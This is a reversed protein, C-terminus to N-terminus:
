ASRGPLGMRERLKRTLEEIAGRENTVKPTKHLEVWWTNIQDEPVNFRRLWGETAVVTSLLPATSDLTGDQLTDLTDAVIPRLAQNLLVYAAPPLIPKGPGDSIGTEPAAGAQIILGGNGLPERVFWDPPLALSSSGGVERVLEADLANLWDVTKIKTYLKRINSRMPDGVDIGPGFRRAYFYESAENPRRGMPPVNVAFGAHGHVTPLTEAFVNFMAQFRAPRHVLFARPVSFAVGDLGRKREAKWDSLAFVTFDYFGTALKHEASTMAVALTQNAPVTKALREFGPAQDYATPDEGEAYFWRLPGTKSPQQGAAVETAHHYEEIVASYQEFCSVLAKRVEPTFGNRFYLVGRVVLAAGTIGKRHPPEYLGYPMTDARRPDKAWAEIQDDTM